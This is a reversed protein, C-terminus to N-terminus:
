EQGSGLSCPNIWVSFPVHRCLRNPRSGSRLLAHSLINVIHSVALQEQNQYRQCGPWRDGLVLWVYEDYPAVVNALVVDAGVVHAYHAVLRGVDVANSPFPYDEGVSVTLIAASRPPGCEDGALTAEAGAKQFDTKRARVQPKLGFIGGDGFHELREAVCCSLEPLVMKAIQVLVQRGVM